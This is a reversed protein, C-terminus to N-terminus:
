SEHLKHTRSHTRSLLFSLCSENYDLTSWASSHRKQPPSSWHPLSDATDHRNIIRNIFLITRQHCEIIQLCVGHADIHHRFSLKSFYPCTLEVSDGIRHRLQRCVLHFKPIKPPINVHSWTILIINKPSYATLIIRFNSWLRNGFWGM